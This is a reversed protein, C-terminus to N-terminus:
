RDNSEKRHEEEKIAKAFFRIGCIWALLTLIIWAIPSEM